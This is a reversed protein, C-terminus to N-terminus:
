FALEGLATVYILFGRPDMKRIAQGLTFGTYQEHKLDVDLFYIGRQGIKGLAELLEEPGACAAAVKMDYGKILIEKELERRIAARIQPDDDCLYIPVM